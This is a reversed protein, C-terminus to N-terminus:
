VRDKLLDFQDDSLLEKLRDLGFSDVIADIKQTDMNDLIDKADELSINDAISKIQEDSVSSSIFKIFSDPIQNLKDLQAAFEEDNINLKSDEPIDLDTFLSTSAKNDEVEVKQEELVVNEIGLAKVAFDPFVFYIVFFVGISLLIMILFNKM